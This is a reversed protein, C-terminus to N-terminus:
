KVWVGIRQEIRVGGRFWKRTRARTSEDKSQKGAPFHSTISCTEFHIFSVRECIIVALNSLCNGIGSGVARCCWIWVVALEVTYVCCAIHIWWVVAVFLWRCYTLWSCVRCSQGLDPPGLFTFLEFYSSALECPPQSTSCCSSQRFGVQIPM